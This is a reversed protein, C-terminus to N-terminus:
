LIYHLEHDKRKRKLLRRVTVLAQPALKSCGQHHETTVYRTTSYLFESTVSLEFVVRGLLYAHLSPLDFTAGRSPAGAFSFFGCSPGQRCIM